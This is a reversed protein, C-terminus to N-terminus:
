PEFDDSYVYPSALPKPHSPVYVEFSTGPDMSFDGVKRYGLAELGPPCPWTEGCVVCQLRAEKLQVSIWQKRRQWARALTTPKGRFSSLKLGDTQGSDVVLGRHEAVLSTMVPPYLGFPHAAVWTDARAWAKLRADDIARPWAMMVSTAMFADLLLLAV